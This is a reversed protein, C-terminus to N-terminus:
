LLSLIRQLLEKGIEDVSRLSGITGDPACDIKCWDYYDVLELYAREANRLHDPNSEHGDPKQDRSRKLEMAVQFPMYLFFTEDPRPLGLLEYELQDLFNYVERRGVSDEIKGGQHGMNASVYRDLVLHKGSDLIRRMEPLAARRDAAYYLSAVKPDVSNSGDLFWCPGIEPKGLYPGGVIRGTPTDYRPFSISDSPHGEKRLNKLLNKTQTEKGSYDTGAIVIIKGPDIM